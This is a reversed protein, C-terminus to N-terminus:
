TFKAFRIMVRLRRAEQVSLMDPWVWVTQRPIDPHRIKIFSVPGYQCAEEVQGTSYWAGKYLVSCDNLKANWVLQQIKPESRYSCTFFLVACSIAAAWLYGLPWNPIDSFWPAIAALAAAGWILHM